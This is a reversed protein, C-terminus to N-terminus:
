VVLPNQFISTFVKPTEEVESDCNQISKPEAISPYQCETIMFRMLPKPISSYCRIIHRRSPGDIVVTRVLRGRHVFLCKSLRIECGTSAELSLFIHKAKRFSAYFGLADARDQLLFMTYRLWGERYDFLDSKIVNKISNGAEEHSGHKKTRCHNANILFSNKNPQPNELEGNRYWEISDIMDSYLPSFGLISSSILPYHLSRYYSRALYGNSRYYGFKYKDQRDSKLLGHKFLNSGSFHFGSKATAHNDESDFLKPDWNEAFASGSDTDHCIDGDPQSSTALNVWASEHRDSYEAKDQRCSVDSSGISTYLLSADLAQNSYFHSQRGNTTNDGRQPGESISIEHEKSIIEHCRSHDDANKNSNEKVNSQNLSDYARVAKGAKFCNGM